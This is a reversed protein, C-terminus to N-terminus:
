ILYAIANYYSMAYKKQGLVEVKVLFISVQRLDM